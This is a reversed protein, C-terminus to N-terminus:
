FYSRRLLSDGAFTSHTKLHAIQNGILDQVPEDLKSPNERKAKKKAPKKAKEEEEEEMPDADAGYDIEILTYLKPYSM